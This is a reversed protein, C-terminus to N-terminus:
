ESMKVISNLADKRIRYVNMELSKLGHFSLSKFDINSDRIEYKNYYEWMIDKQSLGKDYKLRLIFLQKEPLLEKKPKGKDNEGIALWREVYTITDSMMKLKDQHYQIEAEIQHIAQTLDELDRKISLKYKEEATETRSSFANTVSPPIDSFQTKSLGLSERAEDELVKIESIDVLNVELRKIYEEFMATKGIFFKYNQLHTKVEEVSMKM